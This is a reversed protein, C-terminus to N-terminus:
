REIPDGPNTWTSANELIADLTKQRVYGYNQSSLSIGIDKQFKKVADFTPQDYIESLDGGWTDFYQMQLLKDQLWKVATRRNYKTKPANSRANLLDVLDDVAANSIV